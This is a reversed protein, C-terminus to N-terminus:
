NQKPSEINVLAEIELPSNKPLASVAFTTRVPYPESFIAMMVENIAEFDAMDTLFVSLKIVEDITGGAAKIIENINGFVQEAQEEISGVVLEGLNNLPIQGSLFLLNGLWIAQSYPGLAPPAKPTSITKKNM